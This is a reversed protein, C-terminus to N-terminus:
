PQGLIRHARGSRIEKRHALDNGLAQQWGGGAAVAWVLAFLAAYACVGVRAWRSRARRVVVASAALLACLEFTAGWAGHHRPDWYSVPSEFRWGSFPYFHRHADEVHLPFDGLSHLFLSAFFLEGGRWGRWRAAAWGLAILPFSHLADIAHQWGSVFYAHTWMEQAPIHYLFNSTLFFLVIPLDPVIAGAVIWAWGRRTEGRGLLALNLVAHTPTNM